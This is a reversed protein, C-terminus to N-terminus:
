PMLRPEVRVPRQIGGHRSGVDETPDQDQIFGDGYEVLDKAVAMLRRIQVARGYYDASEARDGKREPAEIAGFAQVKLSNGQITHSYGGGFVGNAGNQSADTTIIEVPVDDRHQGHLVYGERAAKEVFTYSYRM